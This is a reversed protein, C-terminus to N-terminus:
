VRSLISQSNKQYGNTLDSVPEYVPNKPDGKLIVSPNIGVFTLM